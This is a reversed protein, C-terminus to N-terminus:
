WPGWTSSASPALSKWKRCYESQLTISLGELDPYILRYTIGLAALEERLSAKCGAPIVFRKLLDGEPGGGPQLMIADKRLPRPHITFWGQQNAIRRFNLQPSFPLPYNSCDNDTCKEKKWFRQDTCAQKALRRAAEGISWGSPYSNRALMSLYASDLVWIEGNTAKTHSCVVCSLETVFFAAILANETWDLLRTPGRFHQILALWELHNDPAPCQSYVSPAFDKFTTILEAEYSLDDLENTAFQSNKRLSQLQTRVDDRFVKPLLPGRPIEENHGRFLRSQFRRALEVLDEISKIEGTNM